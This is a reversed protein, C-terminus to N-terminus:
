DKKSKKSSAEAGGPPQQMARSWAELWESYSKVGEHMASEWTNALRAAQENQGGGAPMARLQEITAEAEELKARLRESHELLKQYRARPVVGMMEWWQEMAAPADAAAGAGPLFQSMWHGFDAPSAVKGFSQMAERAQTSGRAADALLRFWQEALKDADKEM